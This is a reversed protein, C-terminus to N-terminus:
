SLVGAGANKRSRIWDETQKKILFKEEDVDWLTKLQDQGDIQRLVAILQDKEVAKGQKHKITLQKRVEFNEHELAKQQDNMKELLLLKQNYPDVGGDPQGPHERGLNEPIEAYKKRM